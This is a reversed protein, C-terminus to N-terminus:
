DTKRAPPTGTQTPVSTPSPAEPPTGSPEGRYCSRDSKDAPNAPWDKRIPLFYGPYAKIQAVGKATLTLCWRVTLPRSDTARRVTLTARYTGPTFLWNDARFSMNSVSPKDRTVLFPSSDNEEIFGYQDTTVDGQWRGSAYWLFDAQGGPQKASGERRMQMALGTVTEARQSEGLVAIVPQMLIKSYTGKSDVALRTMDPMVVTIGPASRVAIFSYVSIVLATLSAVLPVWTVATEM